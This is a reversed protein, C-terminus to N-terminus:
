FRLTYGAGVKITDFAVTDVAVRFAGPGAAFEAGAGVTYDGQTDDLGLDDDDIDEEVDPNLQGFEELINGTDFNIEQYGGRAFLMVGETPVVGIHGTIGYEGDIESEGFAGNIEAGIIANRGLPASYGAYGGFTGGDIGYGLGNFFSEDFDTEDIDSDADFDQYSASLGVYPGSFDASQALAGGPVSLAAAAALISITKM